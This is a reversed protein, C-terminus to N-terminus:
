ANEASKAGRQKRGWRGPEHDFRAEFELKDVSDRGREAGLDVNWEQLRLRLGASAVTAMDRRITVRVFTAHNKLVGDIASEVGPEHPWLLPRPDEPPSGNGEHHYDFSSSVRKKVSAEPGQRSLKGRIGWRKQRESYSSCDIRSAGLANLVRLVEHFREALLFMDVEGLPILQTPRMPHRGYARGGRAGGDTFTLGASQAVSLLEVAPERELRKAAPWDAEPAFVVVDQM